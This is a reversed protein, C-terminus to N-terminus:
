FKCTVGLRLRRRLLGRILLRGETGADVVDGDVDDDGPSIRRNDVQCPVVELDEFVALRLGDFLEAQDPDVRGIGDATQRWAPHPAAVILQHFRGTFVDADEGDQEVVIV